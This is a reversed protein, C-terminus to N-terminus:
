RHAERATRVWQQPRGGFAVVLKWCLYPPFLLTSALYRL